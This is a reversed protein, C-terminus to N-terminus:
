LAGGLAALREEAFLKAQQSKRANGYYSTRTDSRVSETSNYIELFRKYGVIAQANDKSKGHARSEPDSWFGWAFSLKASDHAKSNSLDYLGDQNLKACSISDMTELARNLYQLRDDYGNFGGNVKATCFIFDDADSYETLQKYRSWFWGASLVSHPPEAMKRYDPDSLFNEGIFQGYLRYNEEWTIQILGRGIYPAYPPLPAGHSLGETTLRLGGSEHLMQALIHARSVCSDLEFRTFMENIPGLYKRINALSARPAIHSLQEETIDSVCSCQKDPALASIFEVPHFYSVRGDAPLGVKQAVEDWFVSNDIRESAHRWREPNNSLRDRMPQWKASDAKSQWETHHLVVLKSWRDRFEPNRLTERLENASLKGDHNADALANLQAYFGCVQEDSLPSCSDRLHQQVVKFGLAKLNHQSVIQVRTSPDSPSQKSIFVELDRVPDGQGPGKEKVLTKYYEKGDDKRVIPLKKLDFVHEQFLYSRFESETHQGLVTGELSPVHLYQKGLKLGAENNLFADLRPDCTFVELHVQHKSKKGTGQPLEHLGLYGVPDGAKIPVPTSPVIVTDLRAPEITADMLAQDDVFAWFFETIPTGRSETRDSKCRAMPRLGEDTTAPRTHENDFSLWYGQPLDENIYSRNVSGQAEVLRFMNLGNGERVRAKVKGRWYTPKVRKPPHVPELLETEWKSKIPVGKQHTAFWVIQNKKLQGPNTYVVRGKVFRYGEADDPLEELIDFQTFGQIEGVNKSRPDSKPLDRANRGGFAAMVRKDYAPDDNPYRDFPLLHMYLSYFTLENHKGVNPGEEPNPASQYKHRVLCFSTSYQLPETDPGVQSTLYDKNLRYAVVEGDAICRVPQNYVCHPASENSLHIGSHWYDSKSLLYHGSTESELLRHLQEADAFPNGDAKRIPFEFTSM